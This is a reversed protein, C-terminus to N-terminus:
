VHPELKLVAGFRLLLRHVRGAEALEDPGHEEAQAGPPDPRAAVGLIVVVAYSHFRGRGQALELLHLGLM